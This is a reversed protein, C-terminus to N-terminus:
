IEAYGSFNLFLKRMRRLLHLSSKLAQAASRKSSAHPAKRLLHKLEAFIQEIPHLDPAYKPQIFL